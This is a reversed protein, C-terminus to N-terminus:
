LKAVARALSSSTVSRIDTIATLTTLTQHKVKASDVGDEYLIFTNSGGPKMTKQFLARSQAWHLAIPLGGYCCENLDDVDLGIAM